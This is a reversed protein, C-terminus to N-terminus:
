IAFYLRKELKTKLAEKYFGSNEFNWIGHPSIGADIYGPYQPSNIHLLFPIKIFIELKKPALYRIAERM